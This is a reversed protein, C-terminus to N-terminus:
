RSGQTMRTFVKRRWKIQEEEDEPVSQINGTGIRCQSKKSGSRSRTRQQGGRSGLQISRFLRLRFPRAGFIQCPYGKKRTPNTEETGDDHGISRVGRQERCIGRIPNQFLEPGLSSFVPIDKRREIGSQGAVDGDNGDGASDLDERKGRWAEGRAFCAMCHWVAGGTYKIQALVGAHPSQDEQLLLLLRTRDGLVRNRWGDGLGSGHSSTRSGGGSKSGEREYELIYRDSGRLPHTASVAAAGQRNEPAGEGTGGNCIDAGRCTRVMAEDPVVGPWSGVLAGLINIQRPLSAAASTTSSNWTDMGETGEEIVRPLFKLGPRKSNLYKKNAEFTESSRWKWYQQM